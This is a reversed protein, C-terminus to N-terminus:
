LQFASTEGDEFQPHGFYLDKCTRVPNDKTGVPRRIRDMEQKMSYITSYMDVFKNGLEDKKPSKSKKRVSNKSLIENTSTKVIEDDYVFDDEAFEADRKMRDEGKNAEGNNMRFLLEPPLLPADATRFLYDCINNLSKFLRESVQHDRHDQRASLDQKM